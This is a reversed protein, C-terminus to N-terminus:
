NKLSKIFAVSCIYCNDNTFYLMYMEYNKKSFIFIKNHLSDNYKDILFKIYEDQINGTAKMLVDPSVTCPIYGCIATERSSNPLKVM